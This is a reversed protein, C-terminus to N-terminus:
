SIREIGPVGDFGGDFSLIRKVRRRVMVAVHLADRASVRLRGALVEAAKEVDAREVPYVEDVVGLIADLAPRIAERREIAVYRHLIEQLVEASTVLREGGSIAEELRARAVAKLPHAAGVLYMPINSDIFIM